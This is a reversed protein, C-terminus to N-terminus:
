RNQKALFEAYRRLEPLREAPFDAPLRLATPHLGYPAADDTVGLLYDVSVGFHKALAIKVADPPESKENEYASISHKNICLIDALQQQTLDADTRLDLLRKGIM